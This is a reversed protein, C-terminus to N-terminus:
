TSVIKVPLSVSFTSGQGLKSKVSIHGHHNEVLRGAIALGLGTGGEKTTYFLDFIRSLDKEPVGPGDDAFDVVVWEGRQQSVLELKGGKDM